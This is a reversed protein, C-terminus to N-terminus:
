SKTLPTNEEILSLILVLFIQSLLELVTHINVKLLRDSKQLLGRGCNWLALRYGKKKRNGNIIKVLKNISIGPLYCKFGAVKVTKILLRSFWKWQHNREEAYFPNDIKKISIM